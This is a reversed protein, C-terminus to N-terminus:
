AVPSLGAPPSLEANTPMCLCAYHLTFPRRALGPALGHVGARVAWKTSGAARALSGSAFFRHFEIPLPDDLEARIALGARAVLARVAERDLRQIHGVEEAHPRNTQRLASLNSSFPV